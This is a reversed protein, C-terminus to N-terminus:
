AAPAARLDHRLCWSVLAVLSLLRTADVDAHGRMFRTVASSVAAPDLAGLAALRDPALHRRTWEALPGRLWAHWPIAFGRKPARLPEHPLRALDVLLRKNIGRSPARVEPPAALVAAVLRHDLLPARVELGHAMSMADIDRLQTDVLYGGLERLSLDTRADPPGALVPDRASVSFRPPSARGLLRAVTAPSFMERLIAYVADPRGQTSLLAFAKRVRTPLRPSLGARLRERAAPPLWRAGAGVACLAGFRDFHPYGGFLEDGGTGSLAVVLGHARAARAVFWTNLGDHSPLDQAALAADLDGLAAAALLHSTHHRLGLRAAMAAAREGENLHSGEFTLTFTELGARAHRAAVAALAASDVGGSLFVGLPRDSLLRQRVATDLLDELRDRWDHVFPGPALAWWRREARGSADLTLLHGPRLSRVGPLLTTPEQCSGRALWRALGEPDLSRPALGTALLARVESAFALGRSPLDVYYLPKKGLRDRALLLTASRPDWYALAFMGVLRDLAAAGERILLHLLTETDSTGAFSVGARELAPRLELHNYIEGNVVLLEGGPGRMPQQGTPSLDLIALRTHALAVAVDGAAAHATGHGDPGRHALAGLATDLTASAAGVVVRSGFIGFIGCMAAVTACM